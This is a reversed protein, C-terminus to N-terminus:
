MWRFSTKASTAETSTRFSTLSVIEESPDNPDQVWKSQTIDLCQRPLSRRAQEHYDSEIHRRSKTGYSKSLPKSTALPEEIPFASGLGPRSKSSNETVIPEEKGEPAPEVEDVFSVQSGWTVRSPRKQKQERPRPSGSSKSVPPTIDGSVSGPPSPEIIELLPVPWPHKRTQEELGLGFPLYTFPDFADKKGSTRATTEGMQATETAISNREKARDALEAPVFFSAYDDHGRSEPMKARRSPGKAIREEGSSPWDESGGSLPEQVNSGSPM